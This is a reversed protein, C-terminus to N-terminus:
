KVRKFTSPEWGDASLTLRDKTVAYVYVMPTATWEMKLTPKVILLAKGRYGASRAAFAQQEPATLETKYPLPTGPLNSMVLTQNRLFEISEPLFPCPEGAGNVPRHTIQWTGLLQSAGISEAAFGKPALIPSLAAAVLLLVALSKRFM